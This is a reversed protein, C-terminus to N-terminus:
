FSLIFILHDVLLCQIFQLWFLHASWVFRFLSGSFIYCLTKTLHFPWTHLSFIFCLFPPFHSFLNFKGVFISLAVILASEGILRHTRWYSRWLPCKCYGMQGGRLHIFDIIEVTSDITLKVFDELDCKGGFFTKM